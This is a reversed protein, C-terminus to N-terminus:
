VAARHRGPPSRPIPHHTPPLSLPLLCLYEEPQNMSIYPLFWYSIAFCNNKLQFSIFKLFFCHVELTMIFTSHNKRQLVIPTKASFIPFIFPFSFLAILTQPRLGKGPICAEQPCAWPSAKSVAPDGMGPVRFHETFRPKILHLPHRQGLPLCANFCSNAASDSAEYNARQAEKLGFYVELYFM